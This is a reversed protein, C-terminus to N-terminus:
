IYVAASRLCMPECEFHETPSQEKENRPACVICYYSSWWRLSLCPSLLQSDCCKLIKSSLLKLRTSVDLMWEERRQLSSSFVTLKTFGFGSQGTKSVNRLTTNHNVSVTSELGWEGTPRPVVGVPLQHGRLAPVDGPDCLQAPHGAHIHARVVHLLLNLDSSWPPHMVYQPCKCCSTSHTNRPFRTLSHRKESYSTTATFKNEQRSFTPAPNNWRKCVSLAWYQDSTEKYTDRSLRSRLFLSFNESAEKIEKNLSKFQWLLEKGPKSISNQHGRKRNLLCEAQLTWHRSQTIVVFCWNSSFAIFVPSFVLNNTKNEQNTKQPQQVPSQTSPM